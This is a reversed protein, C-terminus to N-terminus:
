PPRDASLVILPRNSLDAEVLAPLLNAVATGSTTVIVPLAGGIALGLAYFGASREDLEVHVDFGMSLSSMSLAASRSGPAVVVDSVGHRRLEDLVTSALAVSANPHTM